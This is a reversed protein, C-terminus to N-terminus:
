DPSKNRQPHWSSLGSSLTRDKLSVTAEVTEPQKHGKLGVPKIDTSAAEYDLIGM